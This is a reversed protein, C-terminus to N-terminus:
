AKRAKKLAEICERFAIIVSVGMHDLERKLLAVNAEHETRHARVVHVHDSGVGVALAIARLRESPMITPQAGTMGTTANDLILFKVNTGHSVADVLNPIGSHYFTSDGIVGVAPRLGAESAGRAMGFSAGMEVVTEVANYPPLAGLTYCGIDANVAFVQHGELAETLFSFSDGHPCGACLQPPRGPPVLSSPALGQRAPLGLAPRINDPTLEGTAPVEGSEKGSIPIPTSLIGRLYREVFPYGEELVLIRKSRSALERLAGHPIPYRSIHLHSPKTALDGENERYYQLALGTTVVALDASGPEIASTADNEGRIREYKALLDKWLRRAVSPMLNWGWRDGAKSVPNQPLRPGFVVASRGHALRTVIRLMVPCANKESLEFAERAMDYAEQSDAPELCPVRAFDAYWRSDQEDQSSHMGPDDAVVVVLGGNIKLLASNIFPDAAVNLGVHKMSVMTRRGAYSAGLASEFATKENSCWQAVFGGERSAIEQLTEMIETSPTGPYAFAASLGAHLAGLAIAEDGMLMQNDM